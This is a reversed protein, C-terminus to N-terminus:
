DLHCTIAVFTLEQLQNKTYNSYLDIEKSKRSDLATIGFSSVIISQCKPSGNRLCHLYQQFFSFFNLHTKVSTIVNIEIVTYASTQNIGLSDCCYKCLENDKEEVVSGFLLYM